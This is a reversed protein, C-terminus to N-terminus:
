RRARRRRMAQKPNEDYLGKFLPDSFYLFREVVAPPNEMTILLARNKDKSFHVRLESDALLPAERRVDRTSAAGELLQRRPAGSPQEDDIDTSGLVDSLEKLTEGDNNGFAMVMGSNGVFTQWNKEYHQKLQGMNQAIVWLKVDFGAMLGAATEIAQMHGLIPFEDLVFLVPAPPKAVTREMVSLAHLIMLRLWRSHTGMRM